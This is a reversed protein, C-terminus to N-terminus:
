PRSRVSGESLNIYHGPYHGTLLHGIVGGSALRKRGNGYATFGKDTVRVAVYRNYEDVLYYKSGAAVTISFSAAAPPPPMWAPWWGKQKPVRTTFVGFRIGANLKEAYRRIVSKYEWRGSRCISDHIWWQEGSSLFRRAPGAVIAHGGDFAGSCTANSFVDSDGQIEVVCGAKVASEVAAWGQGSRNEYPIGMRAAARDADPISWGPTNPDTEEHREVLGHVQDPNLKFAGGTVMRAGTTLATWTCGNTATSAGFDYQTLHEPDYFGGVYAM